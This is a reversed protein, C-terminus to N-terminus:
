CNYHLQCCIEYGYLRDSCNIKETVSNNIGFSMLFSIDQSLCSLTYKSYFIFFIIIQVATQLERIFCIGLFWGKWKRVLNSPYMVISSVMITHSKCTFQGRKDGVKGSWGFLFARMSEKYHRIELKNGDSIKVDPQIIFIVEVTIPIKTKNRKRNKNKVYKNRHANKCTYACTDIDTHMQAHIHTHSCAHRIEAQSNLDM